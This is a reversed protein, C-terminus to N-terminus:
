SRVDLSQIKEKLPAARQSYDFDENVLYMEKQGSPPYTAFVQLVGNNNVHLTVDVYGDSNDLPLEGRAGEYDNPDTSEGEYVKVKANKPAQYKNSVSVPLPSDKLILHEIMKKAGKEVEIGISSSSVDRVNNKQNPYFAAGISIATDFDFGEIHRKIGKGSIKELYDPIMNMRCSGGALIIEDISDWNLGCNSLVKECMKGCRDLLEKAAINFYFEQESDASNNDTFSDRYLRVTLDQGNYSIEVETEDMESLDFKAKLAKQQIDWGMDSPIETGFKKEFEESLYLVILEDWNIGGISNEGLSAIVKAMGSQMQLITVDLTGGGLDFVMIKCNEAASFGYTLSAATPENILGKVNFGAVYGALSTDQRERDGFSAPVTIIADLIIDRDETSGDIIKKKKFYRIADKKLKKLILASIGAAGYEFGNFNYPADKLSKGMDRKVFEIIYPSSETIKRSNANDGVYVIGAKGDFFIVSPTINKNESNPIVIAKGSEDIYSICSFTTGLDIGVIPVTSKKEKKGNDNGNELPLVPSSIPLQKKSKYKSDAIKSFILKISDKFVSSQLGKVNPYKKSLRDLFYSTNIEKSALIITVDEIRVDSASLLGDIESYVIPDISNYRLKDILVREKVKFFYSKGDTFEVNGTIIPTITDLLGAAFPLLAVLEKDNDISLFSNQAIVYEIIIEALIKIRPDAGVGILKSFGILSSSPSKYLQLYLNNDKGDLLLVPKSSDVICGKLLVQFLTENYDLVEINEYASDVLLNELIKKADDEIDVDFLLRFPFHGKYSEISDGQDLITTIFYSLYQEVGYYLLQAVPKRIGPIILNHNKLIDFFNGYANPDNSYFKDRALNGFVFDNGNVYFYLPIENTDKIILPAYPNGDLQYWFSITHKSIKALVCFNM